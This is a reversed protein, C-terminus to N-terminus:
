GIDSGIAKRIKKDLGELIKQLIAEYIIRAFGVVAVLVPILSSVFALSASIISLLDGDFSPLPPLVVPVFAVSLGLAVVGLVISYVWTPVEKGKEVFAKKLVWVIVSSLLSLVFLLEASMEM